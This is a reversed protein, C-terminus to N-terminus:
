TKNPLVWFKLRLPWIPHIKRDARILHHVLLLSNQRAPNPPPTAQRNSTPTKFKSLRPRRKVPLNNILPNTRDM